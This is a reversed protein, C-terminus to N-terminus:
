DVARQYQSWRRLSILLLNIPTETKRWESITEGLKHRAISEVNLGIESEEEHTSM